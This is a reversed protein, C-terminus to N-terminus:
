RDRLKAAYSSSPYKALFAETAKKEDGGRGLARLARIRGYAADEALPGGKALYRDFWALAPKAKNRDLYLQGLTVMATKSSSASPHDDVLGEYAAIAGDIDGAGRKTRARELWQTATMGPAADRAGFARSQGAKLVVAAGGREVVRVQGGTVDVSFRGDKSAKIVFVTTAAPVVRQGAVEYVITSTTAAAQSGDTDVKVSGSDIAIRLEDTDRSLALVSGADFCAEYTGAHVCADDKATIKGVDLAADKGIAIGDGDVFSGSRVVLPAIAVITPEPPPVPEPPVATTPAVIPEERPADQKAPTTSAIGERSPPVSSGRPWALWAVLGAALLVGVAIWGQRRPTATTVRAPAHVDFDALVDQVLADDSKGTGDHDEGAHQLAHLVDQEVRVEPDVGRHSQLFGRDDDSLSEGTADAEMLNRWRADRLDTPESM